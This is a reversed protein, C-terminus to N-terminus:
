KDLLMVLPMIGNMGALENIIHIYTLTGLVDTLLHLLSTLEDTFM